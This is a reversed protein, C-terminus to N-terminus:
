AAWHPFGGAGLVGVRGEFPVRPMAEAGDVRLAAGTWRGAVRVEEGVALRLDGVIELPTGAISLGGVDADVPGIIQVEEDAQGRAIRSAVVVGDQRRMGSVRVVTGLALPDE